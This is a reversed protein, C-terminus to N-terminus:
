EGQAQSEGGGSVPETTEPPAETTEPVPMTGRSIVRTTMNYHDQKFKVTDTLENNVYVKKVLCSTCEARNKGSKIETGVPLTPDDVYVTEAEKYFIIDNTFEVKRNSPRTEKGYITYTATSGVCSTAIYVPYDLTNTFRFDYVKWSIAADFSPEVYDVLMSHNHREDIQLEAKLVANYLTTAVQCVGGGYAEVSEGNLYENALAYGNEPTRELITDSTSFSEGPMLLTGNIRGSAVKINTKRGEKSTSYSTTFSGLIDRVQSLVVSNKEPEDVAVAAEASMSMSLEQGAFADMIARVSGEVDVDIGTVSPTVVFEGNERTITAEVKEANLPVLNTIVYDRVAQEDISYDINMVVGGYKLDMLTKYRAVLQGHQGLFAAEKVIGETNYTFGLENLTPHFTEKGATITVASEGVARYYDDIAEQAETPNLGSLNIDEAYIGDAIVISDNLVLDEPHSFTWKGGKPDEAETETEGTGDIKDLPDIVLQPMDFDLAYATLAPASLAACLIVAIAAIIKRKM